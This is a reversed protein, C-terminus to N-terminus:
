LALLRSKVSWHLFFQYFTVSLFTYNADQDGIEGSQYCSRIGQAKPTALAMNSNMCLTILVLIQSLQLKIKM